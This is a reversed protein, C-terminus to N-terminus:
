MAWGSRLNNAPFEQTFDGADMGQAGFAADLQDQKFASQSSTEASPFGFSMTESASMDQLGMDGFNTATDNVNPMYSFSSMDTQLGDADDVASGSGAIHFADSSGTTNDTAAGSEFQAMLDAFSNNTSADAWFSHPLSWRNPQSLTPRTGQGAQIQSPFSTPPQSIDHTPQNSSQLNFGLNTEDPPTHDGLESISNSSAYTLAPQGNDLGGLINWDFNNWNFEGSADSTASQPGNNAPTETSSFMGDTNVGFLDEAGSPSITDSPIAFAGFTAGPTSAQTSNASHPGTSSTMIQQLQGVSFKTAKDSLVLSDVSRRGAAHLGHLHANNPKHVRYPMNADHATTNSRHVPKHHGNAFITIQGESQTASLRPKSRHSPQHSDRNDSGPGGIFCVCKEGHTCCCSHDVPEDDEPVSVLERNHDGSTAEANRLHVCKEKSHPKEGCDCRVHASRKKREGRCHQCQTVPRGKKPVFLLPRDISDHDSRPIYDLCRIVYRYPHLWQCPAGEPVVPLGM